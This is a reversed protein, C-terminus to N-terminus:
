GLDYDGCQTVIETFPGNGNFRSAGIGTLLGMRTRSARCGFGQGHVSQTVIKFMMIRLWCGTGSGTPLAIVGTFAPVAVIGSLDLEGSQAVIETFPGNGGFRGAGTGTFLDM